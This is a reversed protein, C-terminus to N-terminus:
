SGSCADNPTPVRKPVSCLLVRYTLGPTARVIFIYDASGVIKKRCSFPQNSASCLCSAHCASGSFPYVVFPHRLPLGILGQPLVGRPPTSHVAHKHLCHNPPPMRSYCAHNKAPARELFADPQQLLIGVDFNHVPVAGGRGVQSWLKAVVAWHLIAEGGEGGGQMLTRGTKAAKYTPELAGADASHARRYPDALELHSLLLLPGFPLVFNTLLGDTFTAISWAAHRRCIAVMRGTRASTQVQKPPTDQEFPCRPSSRASFLPPPCLLNEIWTRVGEIRRFKRTSESAYCSEQRSASLCHLESTWSPVRLVATPPCGVGTCPVRKSSHSQGQKDHICTSM